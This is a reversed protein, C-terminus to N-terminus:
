LEPEHNEVGPRLGKRKRVIMYLLYGVLAAAAGYFIFPNKITM